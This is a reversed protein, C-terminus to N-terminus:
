GFAGHVSGDGSISVMGSGLFFGRAKPAPPTSSLEIVVLIAQSEIWAQANTGDGQVAALAAQSGVRAQANTGDGQVIVVAAQSGVVANTAM